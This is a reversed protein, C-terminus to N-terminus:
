TKIRGKIETSSIVPYYPMCVVRGNISSMFEEVIVIDEPSHSESEMLIDPKIIKINGLPSYESQPVVCDVFGLARVLRMREDLPLTPKPKKEMVAEDTLVGVILKDGLAKANELAILHGTHIIDCVVYAYVIRCVKLISM